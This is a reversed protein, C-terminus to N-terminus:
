RKQYKNEVELIKPYVEKMARFYHADNDIETWILNSIKEVYFNCEPVERFSEEYHCKYGISQNHLYWKYLMKYSKFSIKNIGVLEAYISDLRYHTKSINKLHNNNDVEIYVEDNSFTPGSGLVVDKKNHNIVIELAKEEYLLDSELLLFDDAILDNIVM